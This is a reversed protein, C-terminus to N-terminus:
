ESLGLAELARVSDRYTEVRVTLGDRFTLVFWHPEEFGAKSQKGRGTMAGAVCGTSRVVRARCLDSVSRIPWILFM